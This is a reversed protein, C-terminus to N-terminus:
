RIYKKLYNASATISKFCDGDEFNKDQEVVYSKVGIKEAIEIVGDWWINGNGIECMTNEFKGEENKFIKIDKLHLIDIRGDLKEMWHRVDQGAYAAWCTDFVFSINDKDFNEYMYDFLSKGNKIKVFEFQHNHYNLKFGHKAYIEAANNYTEIFRMLEDYDERAEKPMGGIGINKTEYLEHLKMTEDINNVIELYKHHTGVINLGHKKALAAFTEHSVAPAGATQIDYYGLEALKAFSEDISKEDTMCDRITYLQLGLKEFM